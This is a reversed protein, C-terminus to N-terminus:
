DRSGSTEILNPGFQKAAAESRGREPRDRILDGVTQPRDQERENRTIRIIKILYAHMRSLATSRKDPNLARPSLRETMWIVPHAHADWPSRM